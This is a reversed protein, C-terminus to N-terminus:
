QQDYYLSGQVAVTGGSVVVRARALRGIAPDFNPDFNVRVLSATATLGTHENIYVGGIFGGGGLEEWTNGSDNSQFFDVDIGVAPAVSNLGGTVTRDITVTAHTDTNDMPAGGSAPFNYTGPVLTVLPIDVPLGAM